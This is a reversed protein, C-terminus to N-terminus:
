ANRSWHRRIRDEGIATQLKKEDAYYVPDIKRLVERGENDSYQFENGDYFRQAWTAIYRTDQGQPWRITCYQTFETLIRGWLGEQHGVKAYQDPHIYGSLAAQHAM